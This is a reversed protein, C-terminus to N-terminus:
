QSPSHWYGEPQAPLLHSATLTQCISICAKGRREGATQTGSHTCRTHCCRNWTSPRQAACGPGTYWGGRGWWPCRTSYATRGRLKPRQGLGGVTRTLGKRVTRSGWPILDGCGQRGMWWIRLNPAPTSNWPHSDWNIKRKLNLDWWLIFYFDNWSHTM